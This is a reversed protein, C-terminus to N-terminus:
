RFTITTGNAELGLVLEGRSTFRYSAVSDLMATFLAEQAGECHMRTAALSSVRLESGRVEYRGSVRNCDTTASLGGDAGLTLTFADPDRPEVTIGDAYTVRIWRWTTMDLRMRAPDAEGEFDQVVEGLQLTELDLRLRITRGISPPTAFSEGPARDAYNVVIVGDPRIETSQPAIRDGLLVAHSGLYGEDRALAAVLYYFTGSGGTERTLLFVVDERGDGDLDSSAENGFYRTVVRATSGPAAEAESVGEVLRVPQGSFIYEANRPDGGTTPVVQDAATENPEDAQETRSTSCAAGGLLLLLLGRWGLPLRSMAERGRRAGVM